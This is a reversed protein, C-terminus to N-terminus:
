EDQDGGQPPHYVMPMILTWLASQNIPALLGM